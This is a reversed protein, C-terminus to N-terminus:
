RLYYTFPSLLFCFCKCSCCSGYSQRAYVSVDRDARWATVPGGMNKFLGFMFYIFILLSVVQLCVGALLLHLGLNQTTWTPALIAIGVGVSQLVTSVTDSSTFILFIGRPSIFSDHIEYRVIMRALVLYIAALFFIPAITLCLNTSNVPRKNTDVATRSILLSPHFVYALFLNRILPYYHLAARASYGGAELALGAIMSASYSWTRWLRLFHLQLSLFFAFVIAFFINLGVSDSPGISLEWWLLLYQEMPPYLATYASEWQAATVNQGDTLTINQSM